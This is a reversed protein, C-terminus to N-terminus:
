CPEVDQLPLFDAKQRVACDPCAWHDPILRWPTGAAYGEHPCGRAEDYVYGCSPCRHRLTMATLPEPLRVHSGSVTSDNM